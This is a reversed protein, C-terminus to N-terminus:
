KRKLRMVQFFGQFFVYIYTTHYEFDFTKINYIWRDKVKLIWYDTKNVSDSIFIFIWLLVAKRQKHISKTEKWWCPRQDFSAGDKNYM